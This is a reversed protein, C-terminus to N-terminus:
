ETIVRLPPPGQYDEEEPCFCGAHLEMPTAEPTLDGRLLVPKARNCVFEVGTKGDRSELHKCGFCSQKKLKLKPLHRNFKRM